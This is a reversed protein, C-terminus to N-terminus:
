LKELRALVARIGDEAAKHATRAEAIKTNIDKKQTATLKERELRRGLADEEVLADDRAALMRSAAAIEEHPDFEPM